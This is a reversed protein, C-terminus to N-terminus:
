HAVPQEEPIGLHRRQMEAVFDPERLLYSNMQDATISDENGQVRAIARYEGGRHPVLCLFAERGYSVVCWGYECADSRVGAPMIHKKGFGDTNYRKRIHLDSSLGIGVM